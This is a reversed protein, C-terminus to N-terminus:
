SQAYGIAGYLNVAASSNLTLDNGATTPNFWPVNSAQFTLSGGATLYASFLVTGGPGDTFKLITGGDVSMIGRYLKTTQGGVGPVLQTNGVGLALPDFPLNQLNPVVVANTGPGWTVYPMPVNYFAIPVAVGGGSSATFRGDGVSPSVPYYGQSFPQATVNQGKPGAGPFNITTSVSNASNDIFVSQVLDFEGSDFAPRLDGYLASLTTFDLIIPLSQAGQKPVRMNPVPIIQGLKIPTLANM